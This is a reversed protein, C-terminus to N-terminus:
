LLVAIRGSCSVFLVIISLIANLQHLASQIFNLTIQEFALKFLHPKLRSKFSQISESTHIEVPLNNWLRPAAIALARDGRTTLRSRPQMLLLQSSSRLARRPNYLDLLDTLYSPAVNTLIKFTLLLIRFGIRYKVPLWHLNALVPTIHEHRRTGTLPWVSSRTNDDLRSTHM